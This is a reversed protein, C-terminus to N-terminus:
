ASFEVGPYARWTDVGDWEFIIPLLRGLGTTMVPVADEPWKVNTPWTVTYATTTSQKFFVTFDFMTTADAGTPIPLNALVLNGTLTYRRGTNKVEALTLPGKTGSVNESVTPTVLAALLSTQRADLATLGLDKRADLATLNTDRRADLATLAADRNTNVQGLSTAAASASGSAATASNGAATASNGASTASGAAATASAAAATKNAATADMAAQWQLYEQGGAPPVPELTSLDLVADPAGFITLSKTPFNGGPTITVNWTWGSPTIDPDGGYVLVVGQAADNPGVLYGDADTKAFITEQYMTMPPTAGPIRFVPPSLTPNFTVVADAVPLMEPQLGADNSDAVSRMLRGVVKFTSVISPLDEAM